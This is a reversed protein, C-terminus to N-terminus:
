VDYNYRVFATAHTDSAPVLGHSKYFNLTKEESDTLLVLQRIDKYKDMVHKILNSGISQRQYDPHVLIDQIYIISVGDGVLRILGVLKDHDWCAYWYLSNDLIKSMKDNSKTYAYWEVSNYLDGLAQTNIPKMAQYNM